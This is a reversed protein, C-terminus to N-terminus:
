KQQPARLDQPLPIQFGPRAGVPDPRPRPFAPSWSTLAPSPLAAARPPAPLGRPDWYSRPGGQTEAGPSGIRTPSGTGPSALPRCARSSECRVGGPGDGGGVGDGPARLLELGSGGGVACAPSHPPRPGGSASGLASLCSPKGKFGRRRPRQTEPVTARRGRGLQPCADPLTLPARPLPQERSRRDVTPGLGPMEPMRLGFRLLVTGPGRDGAQLWCAM